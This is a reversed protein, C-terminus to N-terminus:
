MWKMNQAPAKSKKWKLIAELNAEIHKHKMFLVKYAETSSKVNTMEKHNKWIRQIIKYIKIDKYNYNM